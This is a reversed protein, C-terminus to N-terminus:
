HTKTEDAEVADLIEWRGHLALWKACSPYNKAMFILGKDHRMRHHETCLPWVNELTDPGGAGRTTIHDAETPYRQGKVPCALCPERRVAELVGRNEIRRPKPFM